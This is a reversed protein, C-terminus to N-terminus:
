RRGTRRAGLLPRPAAWGACLDRLQLPVRPALCRLLGELGKDRQLSLQRRQM